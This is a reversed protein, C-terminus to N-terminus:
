PLTATGPQAVLLARLKLELAHRRRDRPRHDGQALNHETAPARVFRGLALARTEPLYQPRSAPLLQQIRSNTPTTLAHKRIEPTLAAAKSKLTDPSSGHVEELGVQKPTPTTAHKHLPGWHRALALQEHIDLDQNRFVQM